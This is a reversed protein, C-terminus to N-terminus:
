QMLSNNAEIIERIQISLVTSWEVGHFKREGNYEGVNSFVIILNGNDYYRIMANHGVAGDEAGGHRIEKIKGDKYQIFWGYGYYTGNITDGRAISYPKFQQNISQETLVENNNVANLWKYMDDVTSYVGTAGKYGYNQICKQNYYITKPFSKMLEKSKFDAIEISNSNNLGWFGTGNMQAPILINKSLYSEYVEGSVLEVIIALLNYGEASYSFRQGVEHKLSASLIINVAKEREIIGDVCYNNPLGSTHTLLHHITISEKDEPVYKLFKSIKDKTSLLKSEQLKLIATATFQKSISGIWFATEVSDRYNACSKKLLIGNKNAVLVTGEFGSKVGQNVISDIELILRNEKHSRTDEKQGCAILFVICISLITKAKLYGKM